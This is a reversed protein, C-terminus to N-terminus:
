TRRHQTIKEFYATQPHEVNAGDEAFGGYPPLLIHLENYMQLFGTADVKICHFPKRDVVNCFTDQVDIYPLNDDGDRCAAVKGHQDLRRHAVVYQLQSTDVASLFKKGPMLLFHLVSLILLLCFM